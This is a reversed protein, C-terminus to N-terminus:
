NYRIEISFETPIDNAHKLQAFTKTSLWYVSRYNKEKIM